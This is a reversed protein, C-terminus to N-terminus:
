RMWPAGLIILFGLLSPSTLHYKRLKSLTATTNKYSHSQHLLDSDSCTNHECSLRCIRELLHKTSNGSSRTSATYTTWVQVLHIVKLPIAEPEGLPVRDTQLEPTEHKFTAQSRNQRPMAQRGKITLQQCSFPAHYSLWSMLARAAQYLLLFVLLEAASAHKNCQSATEYSSMAPNKATETAAHKWAGLIDHQSSLHCVKQSLNPYGLCEWSESFSPFISSGRPFLKAVM